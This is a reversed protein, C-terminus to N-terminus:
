ASHTEEEEQHGLEPALGEQEIEDEQDVGAAQM